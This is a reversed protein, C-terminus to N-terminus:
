AEESRGFRLVTAGAMAAIILGSAVATTMYASVGCLRSGLAVDGAVSGGAASAVGGVGPLCLDGGRCPRGYGGRDVSLEVDRWDAFRRRAATVNLVFVAVVLWLGVLFTVGDMWNMRNM